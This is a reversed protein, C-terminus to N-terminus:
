KEKKAKIENDQKITKKRKFKYNKEKKKKKNKRCPKLYNWVHKTILSTCRCVYM